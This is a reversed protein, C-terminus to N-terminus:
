ATQRSIVWFGLAPLMQADTLAHEVAELDDRALMRALYPRSVEVAPEFRARLARKIAAGTHLGGHERRWSTVSNDADSPDHWALWDAARGDYLDWSFEFIFLRGGPRVLRALARVVAELDGHHLSMVATVADFGGLGTVEEVREKLLRPHIPAAPDVGVADFGLEALRDVLGGDGCGADLIRSGAPLAAALVADLDKWWRSDAMRCCRVLRRGCGARV